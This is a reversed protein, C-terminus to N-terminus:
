IKKQLLRLCKIKIISHCIWLTVIKQDSVLFLIVCFHIGDYTESIWTQFVKVGGVETM